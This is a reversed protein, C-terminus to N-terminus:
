FFGYTHYIPLPPVGAPITSLIRSFSVFQGRPSYNLVLFSNIIVCGLTRKERHVSKVDVGNPENGLTNRMSSQDSSALSLPHSSPLPPCVGESLSHSHSPSPPFAISSDRGGGGKGGGRVRRKEICNEGRGWTSHCYSTHLVAWGSYVPVDTM